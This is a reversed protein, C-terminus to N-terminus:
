LSSYRWALYNIRETTTYKSSSNHLNELYAEAMLNLVYEQGLEEAEEEDMGVHDLDYTVAWSKLMSVVEAIIEEENPQENGVFKKEGLSNM